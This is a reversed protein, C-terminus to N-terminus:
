RLFLTTSGDSEEGFSSYLGALVGPFRDVETKPATMQLMATDRALHSFDVATRSINEMLDAPEGATRLGSAFVKIKPIKRKYDHFHTETRSPKMPQAYTERTKTVEIATLPLLVLGRDSKMCECHSTVGNSGM